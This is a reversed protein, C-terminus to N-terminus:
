KGARKDSGEKRREVGRYYPDAAARRDQRSRRQQDSM